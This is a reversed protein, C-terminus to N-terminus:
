PRTGTGRRPTGGARSVLSEALFANRRTILRRLYPRLVARAVLAGAPGLPASFEVVDRMITASPDVPDPACLHEHRWRAFPGSVQEDVFRHPREHDTIRVTMRWPLGFHRAQWTVIDGAALRGTTVGGTAREGSAGMSATHLGVDLCADFVAEPAAGVRTTLEIRPM